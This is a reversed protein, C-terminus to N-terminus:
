DDIEGGFNNNQTNNGQELREKDSSYMIAVLIFAMITVMLLNLGFAASLFFGFLFYVFLKNFPLYRLLIAIGVVPLMGAAVSLGNTISEPIDSVIAQVLDVGFLLAILVPVSRSLGWAFIGMRNMKVVGQVNGAKAHKIGKQLVFTNGMRGFIDLQTMLVAVPIALAVGEQPDLGGAISLATGILTATFYDPVSAGGYTAVGLSVLEITGGIFIGTAIDGMIFGTVVGVTTPRSILNQGYSIQIPQQIFSYITLVIIQWVQIDM